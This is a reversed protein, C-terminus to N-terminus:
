RSPSRPWRMAAIRPASGRLSAGQRDRSLSGVHLRPSRIARAGTRRSYGLAEHLCRATTATSGDHRRRVNMRADDTKSPQRQWWIAIGFITTYRTQSGLLKGYWLTRGHPHCMKEPPRMAVTTSMNCDHWRRANRDNFQKEATTQVPSCDGRNHHIKHSWLLRGSWM